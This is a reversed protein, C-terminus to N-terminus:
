KHSMHWVCLLAVALTFLLHTLSLCSLRCSVAVVLALHRYRKKHQRTPPGTPPPRHTSHKSSPPRTNSTTAHRPGPSCPGSRHRPVHPYIYTNDHRYTKVRKARSATPQPYHTQTDVPKDVPQPYRTPRAPQPVIGGSKKSRTKQNSSMNSLHLLHKNVTQKKSGVQHHRAM